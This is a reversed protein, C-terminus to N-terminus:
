SWQKRRWAEYRGWHYASIHRNRRGQVWELLEEANEVIGYRLNRGFDERREHFWAWQAPSIQDRQYNAYRRKIEVWFSVNGKMLYLDPLGSLAGPMRQRSSFVTAQYGKARLLVVAELITDAKKTMKSSKSFKGPM